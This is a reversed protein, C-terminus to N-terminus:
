GEMAKTFDEWCKGGIIAKFPADPYSETCNLIYDNAHAKLWEVADKMMQEKMAQKGNEFCRNAYAVSLPSKSQAIEALDQEKQWNAGAIFCDQAIGDCTGNDYHLAFNHAARALDESPKEEPLAWKEIAAYPIEEGDESYHQYPENALRLIAYSDKLHCFDETLKAMIVKETPKDTRWIM